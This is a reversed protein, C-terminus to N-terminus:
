NAPGRGELRAAADLLDKRGFPESRMREGRVPGTTYADFLPDGLGNPMAGTTTLAVSGLRVPGNVHRDQFMLGYFSLDVWHTGPELEVATQAWGVPDGSMTHVAGELHFRGSREVSVEASVVLDGDVVRDRFNGTLEAWPSTYLFGAAVRRFDGNELGADVKVLYAQALDPTADAPMEFRASYIGDGAHADPAVGDDLYIVEGIKRGTADEVDGTIVATHRGPGMLTAFLDVPEPSQFAVADAWVSLRPPAGDPGGLSHRTPTYRDAVPDPRGAELAHSHEPYRAQARYDAAASRALPSSGDRGPQAAAMSPLLGLLLAFSLVCAVTRITSSMMKKEYTM